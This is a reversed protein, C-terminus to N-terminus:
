NLLKAPTENESGSIQHVNQHVGVEFVPKLGDLATRKAAIRIHSYHELMRRSVHGAIAMMTQESAQGEALKSICTHRLDHFRCKIGALALAHRWAKRWGQAPRTADVQGTKCFPFVYHEPKTEGSRGAWRALADFATANLPILRGSGAATKSRGVTLTRQGFDIQQWQLGCIESHRLGTNLALVVATYCASDLSHAVELLRYEEEPTLARGIDKREPLMNIHGALPTWYDDKNDAKLIQRLVGVEINITRGQAGQSLRKRQYDRIGEADIDCLLKKGFVPLVRNLAFRVMHQTNPRIEHAHGTQWAEAAKELNPPLSPREKIRNISLELKRRREREADRAITKSKTHTSEHVFRGAFRFRMWYTKGKGRQYIM